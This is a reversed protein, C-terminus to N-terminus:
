EPTNTNNQQCNIQKTKIPKNMQKKNTPETIKKM